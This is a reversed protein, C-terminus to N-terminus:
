IKLNPTAAPPTYSPSVMKCGPLVDAVTFMMDSIQAVGVDGPYGVRVMARPSHEDTFKSGVASIASGYADGIIRTGDPVTITDTVIYTGAPFYILKCGAHMSLIVNINDTDDTSGDGYVPAGKVSKVNVVQDATYQEYTPPKM